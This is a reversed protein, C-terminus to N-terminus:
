KEFVVPTGKTVLGALKAADWNTLRVCGHSETHGIQGPEPTGHIGYHPKNIDIWVVGVPNNPGPPIKAKASAPDADWFLDPNYNFAPNRQVATVVWHGLPLSDHVSGSTVPAHFIIQDKRDYVRLVSAKKSVVIKITGAQAAREVDSVNPVQIHEGAAFSAGPNLRNLLAPASHFKEGLAELASKYHLGPLKSKETMDDPITETFPGATDEATIAYPVTAEVTGAGLAKLLRTRNGAAVRRATRFATLAKRSNPGANGDIEGPSFGARDLLVQIELEEPGVSRAQRQAAISSSAGRAIAPSAVVYARFALYAVVIILAWLALRAMGMLRTHAVPRTGKAKIGTVAAFAAIIVALGLWGLWTM